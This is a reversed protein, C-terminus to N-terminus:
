LGPQNQHLRGLVAQMREMRQVSESKNSESGGSSTREVGCGNGLDSARPAAATSGFGASSSEGEGRSLSGSGSRPNV